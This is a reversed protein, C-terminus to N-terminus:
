ILCTVSNQAHSGVAPLVTNASACKQLRIRAELLTDWFSLQKRVDRGKQVDASSAAKLQQLMAQTDEDLNAKRTSGTQLKEHRSTYQEMDSGSVESEDDEDADDGGSGESEDSSLEQGNMEVEEAGSGSSSLAEEDDDEEQSDNESASGSAYLEARSAKAGAYKEGYDVAVAKRLKSQRAKGDAVERASELPIVSM